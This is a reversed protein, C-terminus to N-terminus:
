KELTPLYFDFDKRVCKLVGEEVLLEACQLASLRTEYPGNGAYSEIPKGARKANIEGPHTAYFIYAKDGVIVVDNHCASPYDDKRDSGDTLIRGQEQWNKMDTSRYVCLGTGRAPDTMMWYYGGMYFVKPAECPPKVGSVQEGVSWKKLDRSTAEYIASNSCNKYWMHWVGQEDRYLAPDIINQQGVDIIERYKWDWGNKSTYHAIMGNGGWHWAAGRIYTSFLHYTGKWYVIGPAWFTNVGREFELDLTGRYRWSAGNNKSEAIGIKTAYCFSVGPTESSARRQTYLIWWAQEDYNYFVCPDAPGDTVPDRFLPAPARHTQASLSNIAVISLLLFIFRRM